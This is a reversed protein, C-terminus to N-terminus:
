APKIFSGTATVGDWGLSEDIEGGTERSFEWPGCIIRDRTVGTVALTDPVTGALMRTVTDGEKLGALWTKDPIM